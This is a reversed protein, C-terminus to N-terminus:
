GVSFHIFKPTYSALGIHLPSPPPQLADYGRDRRDDALDKIASYSWGTQGSSSDRSLRYIRERLQHPTIQISLDPAPDLAEDPLLDNENNAPHLEDILLRLAEVPVATDALLEVGM